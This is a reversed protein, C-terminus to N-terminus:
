TRAGARSPDVACAQTGLARGLRDRNRALLRYARETLPPVAEALLALPGGFPLLRLLLGVAAGARRVEGDQTVLHWSDLHLEPPVDALWREGEASQIAEARLLGRRDWALIRESSWRCFGCDEDYLLVTREPHESM